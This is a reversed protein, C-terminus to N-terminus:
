YANYRIVISWNFIVAQEGPANIQCYEGSKSNILKLIVPYKQKNKFSKTRNQKQHYLIPKTSDKICSGNTAANLASICHLVKEWFKQFPQWKETIAKHKKKTTRITKGNYCSAM